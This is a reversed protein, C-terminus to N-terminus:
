FGFARSGGDVSFDQGTIYRAADSILFLAMAGIDRPEGFRNIPIKGMIKERREPDMVQQSMHSPIWGPSISNVLINKGIWEVALGRTLGIVGSKSACYPVVESFGMYAAMSSISVIRGIHSSERLYSFCTQCMLFLADLNVTHINRWEEMPLDEARCRLTIGANNVLFDIGGDKAVEAITGRVTDANTIDVAMREVGPVPDAKPARRSFDFVRAGAGALVEAVGAGIGGSAGTVIGRRGELSFLDLLFDSTNM